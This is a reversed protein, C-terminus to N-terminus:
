YSALSVHSSATIPTDCCFLQITVSPHTIRQCALFSCEFYLDKSFYCCERLELNFCICAELLILFFCSVKKCFILFFCAVKKCLILFCCAVKKCLVLFFCAVKKCLLRQREVKPLALLLFRNLIRDFM